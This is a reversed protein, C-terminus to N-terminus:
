IITQEKVNSTQCKGILTAAKFPVNQSPTHGSEYKPNNSLHAEPSPKNKM